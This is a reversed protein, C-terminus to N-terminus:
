RPFGDGNTIRMLEQRLDPVEKANITIDAGMAEALKLRESNVDVAVVRTAGLAKSVSAALLGIAGAGLTFILM